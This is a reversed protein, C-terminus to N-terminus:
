VRAESSSTAFDGPVEVVTARPYSSSPPAHTVQVGQQQQQVFSTVPMHVQQQHTQQHQQSTSLSSVPYVQVSGHQHHHHHHHHSSVSVHVTGGSPTATSTGTSVVFSSVSAVTSKPVMPSPVASIQSSAAREGTKILPGFSDVESKGEGVGELMAALQSGSQRRDKKTERKETLAKKPHFISRLLNCVDVYWWRSYIHRHVRSNPRCKPIMTYNLVGHTWFHRDDVRELCKNM